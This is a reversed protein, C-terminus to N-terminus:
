KNIYVWASKQKGGDYTMTYFYTGVPLNDGSNTQGHWEDVYNTKSYVLRGNRNFIEIKTVGFSSLDFNDNYGDGNPSIGQPIICQALEIVEASLEYTCGTTNSTIIATYTGATLVPLTLGTQGSVLDNDHYWEVTVDSATYGDPVLSIEIPVPM